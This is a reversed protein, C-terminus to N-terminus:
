TRAPGAAPVQHGQNDDYRVEQPRRTHRSAPCRITGNGGTSEIIVWPGSHLLHREVEVQTPKAFGCSMQNPYVALRNRMLTM